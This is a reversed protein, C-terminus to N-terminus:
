MSNRSCLTYKAFDVAGWGFRDVYRFVTQYGNPCVPYDRQTDPCYSNAYTCNSSCGLQTSIEPPIPNTGESAGYCPQGAQLLFGPGNTSCVEELTIMEKWTLAQQTLPDPHFGGKGDPKAVTIWFANPVKALCEIKVNWKGIVTSGDAAVLIGGSIRPVAYTSGPSCPASFDILSCDANARLSSKVKLKDIMIEQRTEARYEKETRQGLYQIGALASAIVGFVVILAASGQQSPIM